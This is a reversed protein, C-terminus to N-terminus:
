DSITRRAQEARTKLANQLTMRRYLENLRHPFFLRWGILSSHPEERTSGAANGSTQRITAGAVLRPLLSESAESPWCSFCEILSFRCFVVLSAFRFSGVNATVLVFCCTAGNFKLERNLDVVTVKNTVQVNLSLGFEVPSLDALSDKVSWEVKQAM